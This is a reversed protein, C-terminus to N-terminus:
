FFLFLLLLLVRFSEMDHVFVSYVGLVYCFARTVYCKFYFLVVRHMCKSNAFCTVCHAFKNLYVLCMELLTINVTRNDGISNM